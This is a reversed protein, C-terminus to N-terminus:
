QKLKVKRYSEGRTITPPLSGALYSERGEMSQNREWVTVDIVPLAQKLQIVNATVGWHICTVCVRACTVRGKM